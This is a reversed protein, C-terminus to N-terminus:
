ADGRLVLVPDFRMAKRISLASGAFTVIVAITLIVPFLVPQITIQSNFISQGIQRALLSGCFFGVVGGFVALLAAEAFFLAAVSANGAGLAKM